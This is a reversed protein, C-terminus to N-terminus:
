RGRALVSRGQSVSRWEAIGGTESDACTTRRRRSLSCRDWRRWNAIGCRGADARDGEASRRSINERTRGQGQAQRLVARRLERAIGSELLWNRKKTFVPVDWLARDLDMGVLWRFLMNYDIEEMLLRESRTSDVMQILQARLLKAPPISSQGTNGHM